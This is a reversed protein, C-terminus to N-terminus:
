GLIGLLANLANVLQQLLGSLNPSNLLNAIACLLNGLLNGPGSEATINLVVQNLDVVLGLLDLHLPGLTLSLIGCTAQPALGGGTAPLVLPIAVSRVYTTTGHIFTLIGVARVRQDVLRFSKIRLTGVGQSEGNNFSLNVPVSMGSGPAAQPGIGNTVDQQGQAIPITWAAALALPLISLLRRNM